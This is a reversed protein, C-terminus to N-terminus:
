YRLLVQSQCCPKCADFDAASPLDWQMGNLQSGGGAIQAARVAYQRDNMHPEPASLVPRLGATNLVTGYYPIQTVNSRDIIGYELVLVSVDPDETLRAATVLGTLGGGVIVYDYTKATVTNAATFAALAGLTTTARMTLSITPHFESLFTVIPLWLIIFFDITSCAYWAPLQSAHRATSM